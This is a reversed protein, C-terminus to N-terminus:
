CIFILAKFQNFLGANVKIETKTNASKRFFYWYKSSSYIHIEVSLNKYCIMGDLTIEHFSTQYIYMPYNLHNKNEKTKNNKKKTKTKKACTYKIDLIESQYYYNTFINIQCMSPVKVM